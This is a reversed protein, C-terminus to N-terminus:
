LLERWFPVIATLSADTPREGGYAYQVFEDLNAGFTVIDTQWMSLVPHGHTGRGAPLYRHSCVPVMVPVQSLQSRAMAVAANPASPRDGWADYWFENHEVDFLVGEIPWALRARLEDPDGNRWDPWSGPTPRGAVSTPSSIPLGASLFARHDDAFQFGYSNEIRAFEADTLGPSITFDRVYDGTQALHTAASAGLTQGHKM